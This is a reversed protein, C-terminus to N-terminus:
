TKRDHCINELDPAFNCIKYWVRLLARFILEFFTICVNEFFLKILEFILLNKM